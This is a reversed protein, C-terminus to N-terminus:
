VIKLNSLNKKLSDREGYNWSELSGSKVLRAFACLRWTKIKHGIKGRFVWGRAGISTSIRKSKGKFLL